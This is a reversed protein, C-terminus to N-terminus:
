RRRGLQSCLDIAAAAGADTVRHCCCCYHHRCHRNLMLRATPVHNYRGAPHTTGQTHLGGGEGGWPGVLRVGEGM